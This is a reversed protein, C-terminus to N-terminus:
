HFVTVDHMDKTKIKGSRTCRKGFKKSLLTLFKQTPVEVNIYRGNGGGGMGETGLFTFLTHLM